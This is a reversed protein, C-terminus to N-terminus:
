AELIESLPLCYYKDTDVMLVPTSEMYEIFEKLKVTGKVFFARGGKPLGYPKIDKIRIYGVGKISFYGTTYDPDDSICLEAIVNKHHLVKTSLIVADKMNPTFRDGTIKKLKEFAEQTIDMYSARIGRFKDPELRVGTLIDVVMAGRMVRGSPSAGSILAKYVSFGVSEDINAKQFLKSLIEKLTYNRQDEIEYISLLKLPIPEKELLEIKINILDPKGKSHNLARQSLQKTIEPIQQEQAIREAGSIHEGSRCARMKISFLKKGKM